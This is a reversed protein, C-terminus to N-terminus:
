FCRGTVADCAYPIGWLAECDGTSTCASFCLGPPASAASSFSPEEFLGALDYCALDGGSLCADDSLAAEPDACGKRCRCAFCAGPAPDGASAPAGCLDHDAALSANCSATCRGDVCLGLGLRSDCDGDSACTDYLASDGTTGAAPLCTGDEGGPPATGVFEGDCAPVCAYGSRCAHGPDGPATGTACAALCVPDLPDTGPRVCVGGGAACDVGELDCGPLVCLGGPFGGGLPSSCDEPICTADEPCDADLGCQSAFTGSGPGGCSLTGADCTRECGSAREVEGVERDNDGDLDTWRECCERDSWCGPVCASTWPDCRYGARCCANFAYPVGSADSPVCADMCAWRDECLIAGLQVCAAGVPCAGPDRPDCGLTWSADVCYGASWEVYTVDEYTEADELLCTTGGTCDTDSACAAGVPGEPPCAPPPPGDEAADADTNTDPVPDPVPDPAPTDHPADDPQDADPDNSTDPNPYPIENGGCGGCGPIGTAALAFAIVVLITSRCPMSRLKVQSGLPPM